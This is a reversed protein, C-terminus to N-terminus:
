KATWVLQNAVWVATEDTIEYYLCKEGDDNLPSSLVTWVTLHMATGQYNYQLNSIAKASDTSRIFITLQGDGEEVQVAFCTSSDPAGIVFLKCAGFGAALLLLVAIIKKM